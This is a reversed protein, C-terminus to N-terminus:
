DAKTTRNMLPLYIAYPLLRMFKLMWTFRKPFTIEFRDTLLGRYFRDVAKEVPMLFPMPFENKDTLPTKIFGPNVLQVTIGADGLEMRLAECMNILAAKTAGYASATRLGRYGSISSVVAIRGSKREVMGPIVAELMKVTGMVNLDFQLQFDDVKLRKANVPIYTGANLVCLDPLGMEAVIRDRAQAIAAADTVDLPMAVIRGSLSEAEQELSKLAEAGRASAVM